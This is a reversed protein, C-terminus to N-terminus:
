LLRDHLWPPAAHRWFRQQRAVVAFGNGARLSIREISGHISVSKALRSAAGYKPRVGKACDYVTSKKSVLLTGNPLM